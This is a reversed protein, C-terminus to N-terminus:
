YLWNRAPRIGRTATTDRYRKALWSKWRKMELGSRRMVQNMRGAEKVKTKTKCPDDVSLTNPNSLTLKM